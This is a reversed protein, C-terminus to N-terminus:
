VLISNVLHLRFVRMKALLLRWRLKRRPRKSCDNNGVLRDAFRPLVLNRCPKLLRTGRRPRTPCQNRPVARGANIPRIEVREVEAVNRIVAEHHGGPM